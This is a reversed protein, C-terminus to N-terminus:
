QTYEVMKSKLNELSLAGKKYDLVQSKQITLIHRPAAVDSSGFSVRGRNRDLVFSIFETPKVITLSDGHKAVVERLEALFRKEWEEARAQRAQQREEMAQRSVKLRSTYGSSKPPAAPAPPVPPVPPPPPPAIGAGAPAQGASREQILKEQIRAREVAAAARDAEMEKHAQQLEKQAKKLEEKMEEKVQGALQAELGAKKLEEGAKKLEENVLGETAEKLAAIYTEDIGFTVAMPEGPYGILFLAGQGVLYMATVSNDEGLIHPAHRSGATRGPGSLDQSVFESTTRLIGSMIELEQQVTRANPLEDAAAASIAGISLFIAIALVALVFLIKTNM